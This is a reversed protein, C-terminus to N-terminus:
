YKLFYFDNFTKKGRFDRQAQANTVCDGDNQYNLVHEVCTM